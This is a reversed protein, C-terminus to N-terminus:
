SYKRCFRNLYMAKFKGPYSNSFGKYLLGINSDFGEMMFKLKEPNSMRNIDPM